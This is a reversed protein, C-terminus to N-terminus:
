QCVEGSNCGRICRLEQQVDRYKVKIVRVRQVDKVYRDSQTVLRYFYNDGEKNDVRADWDSNPRQPRERAVKKESSM